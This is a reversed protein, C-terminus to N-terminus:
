AQEELRRTFSAVQQRLQDLQQQLDQPAAPEGAAGSPVGSNDLREAEQQVEDWFLQLEEQLRQPADQALLSLQAAADMAGSGLRAALRRLAAQLLTDPSSM